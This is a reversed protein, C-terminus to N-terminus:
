SSKGVASGLEAPQAAGPEALGTTPSGVGLSRALVLVSLAAVTLMIAFFM